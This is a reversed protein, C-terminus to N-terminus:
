YKFILSKSLNNLLDLNSLWTTKSVLCSEPQRINQKIIELTQTIPINLPVSENVNVRWRAEFAPNTIGFNNMWPDFLIKCIGIQYCLHAIGSDLVIAYYSIKLNEITEKWTPNEKIEVNSPLDLFDNYKIIKNAWKTIKPFFIQYDSFQNGLEKILNEIEKPIYNNTTSTLNVFIKNTPKWEHTLLRTSKITNPHIQYKRWNFAYPNRYLM